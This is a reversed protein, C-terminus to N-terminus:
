PSEIDEYRFIVQLVLESGLISNLLILGLELGQVQENGSHSNSKCSRMKNSRNERPEGEVIFPHEHRQRQAADEAHYPASSCADSLPAAGSDDAVQRPPSKRPTDNVVERYLPVLYGLCVRCFVTLRYLIDRQTPLITELHVAACYTQCLELRSDRLDLGQRTSMLEHTDDIIRIERACQELEM